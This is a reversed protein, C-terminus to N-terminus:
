IHDSFPHKFGWDMIPTRSYHQKEKRSHAHEVEHAWIHFIRHSKLASVASSVLM